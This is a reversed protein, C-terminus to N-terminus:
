EPLDGINQLLRRLGQRHQVGGKFLLKGMQHLALQQIDLCIEFEQFCRSFPPRFHFGLENPQADQGATMM